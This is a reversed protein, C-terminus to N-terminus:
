LGLAVGCGTATVDDGIIPTNRNRIPTVTASSPASVSTEDRKNENNHDVNANINSLNYNPIYKIKNHLSMSTYSNGNFIITNYPTNMFINLDYDIGKYITIINNTAQQTNAMQAITGTVPICVPWLTFLALFTDIFFAMCCYEILVCVFSEM